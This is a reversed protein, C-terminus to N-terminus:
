YDCLFDIQDGAVIDILGKTEVETEYVKQAGLVIGDPNEDSFEIMIMVQEGNLFAPSYGKISYDSGDENCDESLFYYAIPNGDIALWYGDYDVMLNGQDDFDYINDVGLDIYGEGDDIWVNLGISNVLDWDSEELSLVTKGNVETYMLMESDLANRGVSNVLMSLMDASSGGFLAAYPNSSTSSSSSSSGGGMLLSILDASTVSQGNSVQSGGLIDLLSNSTYNNYTQGAAAQQAYSRIATTYEEDMGVKEYLDAASSAKNVKQYPFYISLGYSNNMNKAVNYKVCKQVAEALAKAEKTGVNNCFHVLDIQDIRNSAGYEKTGGRAKSLTAFDESAISQNLNKAFGTLKSPVLADFEGLDIVSLSTLQQRQKNNDAVFEDVIQKGITLTDTSTNKALTSLFGTYYWGAGPETEESAILYDAYPAVAVATELNAMLCADFGIVDFKTGANELATAIEDVSMSGNPYNMDYGFGTLSGGGHDWLILMYRDAPYNKVGWKIFDTLTNPDVMNLQGLKQDLPVLSKSSIQWRQTSNASMVSNKWKKTGGTQLIVNVKDSQTAYAMENIDNSAAGYNAELDTACMYILVTVDDKGNGKIKTFKKRVNKSVTTDVGEMSANTSGTNTVGANGPKPTLQQTTHNQSPTVTTTQTTQTQTVVPQQVTTTTEVQQTTGGGFLVYYAILAVLGLGGMGGARVGMSSGGSSPKSHNVNGAPGGLNLGDGRKHIGGSTTNDGRKRSDPRK